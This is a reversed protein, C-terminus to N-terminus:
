AGVKAVLSPGLSWFCQKKSTPTFTLNLTLSLPNGYPVVNPRSSGSEGLSPHMGKVPPRGVSPRHM